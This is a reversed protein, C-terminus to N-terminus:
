PHLASTQAHFPITPFYIKERYVIHIDRATAGELPVSTPQNLFFDGNLDMMVGGLSHNPM